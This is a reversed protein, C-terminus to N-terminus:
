NSKTQPISGAAVLYEWSCLWASLMLLANRNENPILSKKMNCELLLYKSLVLLSHRLNGYFRNTNIGCSETTGQPFLYDDENDVASETWGCLLSAPHRHRDLTTMFRDSMM